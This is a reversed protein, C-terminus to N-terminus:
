VAKRLKLIEGVVDKVRPFTWPKTFMMVHFKSCYMLDLSSNSTTFVAIPIERLKEDNKIEALAERGSVLPMNMDMIIMSPLDDNAVADRLFDLLERGNQVTIIELEHNIEDAAENFIRLDDADDDAWLVSDKNM